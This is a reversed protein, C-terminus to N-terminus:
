RREESRGGEPKVKIGNVYGGGSDIDTVNDIDNYYSAMALARREMRVRAEYQRLRRDAETMGGVTVPCM